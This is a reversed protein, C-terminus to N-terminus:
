EQAVPRSFSVFTSRGLGCAASLVVALLCLVRSIIGFQLSGGLGEQLLLFGLLSSRLLCQLMSEGECQNLAVGTLFGIRCKLQVSIKM